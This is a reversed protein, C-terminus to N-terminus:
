VFARVGFSRDLQPVPGCETNRAGLRGAIRVLDPLTRTGLKRMLSARHIKVTIESLKLIGAIQKNMKGATVLPFIQRERASLTEVKERLGALSAEVAGQERDRSIAEALSELLDRQKIPKTLFNVAGAKMGQVSMQIDGYGTMLVVPHMIGLPRLSAQFDLGNAGPLRVDLLLCSPVRERSSALFQSASEHLRVKYGVARILSGLGERLPEDDDIVHVLGLSGADFGSADIKVTNMVSMTAMAKAEL